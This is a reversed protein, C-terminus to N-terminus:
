SFPKGIDTFEPQFCLEKAPRKQGNHISGKSLESGLLAVIKTSPKAPKAGCPHARIYGSDYINM